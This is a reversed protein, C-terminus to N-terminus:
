TIPTSMNTSQMVTVKDTTVNGRHTTLTCSNHGYFIHYHDFMKGHKNRTRMLRLESQRAKTYGLFSTSILMLPQTRPLRVHPVTETTLSTTFPAADQNRASVVLHIYSAHIFASTIGSVLLLSILLARALIPNTRLVRSALRRIACKM